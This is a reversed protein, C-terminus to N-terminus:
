GGIKWFDGTVLPTGQDRRYQPFGTQGLTRVGFEREGSGGVVGDADFRQVCGGIRVAHGGVAQGAM